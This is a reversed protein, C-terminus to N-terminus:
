RQALFQGRGEASVQGDRRTGGPRSGQGAEAAALAEAAPPLSSATLSVQLLTLGPGACHPNYLKPSDSHRGSGCRGHEEAVTGM